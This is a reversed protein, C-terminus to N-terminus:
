IIGKKGSISTGWAIKGAIGKNINSKKGKKGEEKLHKIYQAEAVCGVGKLQGTFARKEV